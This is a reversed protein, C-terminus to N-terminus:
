IGRIPLVWPFVADVVLDGTRHDEWWLFDSAMSYKERLMNLIMARYAPGIGFPPEFAYRDWRRVELKICSWRGVPRPAIPRGAIAFALADLQHEHLM